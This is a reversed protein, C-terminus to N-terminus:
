EPDKLEQEEQVSPNSAPRPRAERRENRLKRSSNRPTWTGIQAQESSAHHSSVHVGQKLGSM